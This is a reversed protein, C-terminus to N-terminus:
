PNLWGSYPERQLLELGLCLHLHRTGSPLARISELYYQRVVLILCGLGRRLHESVIEEPKDVLLRGVGDVDSNIGISTSIFSSNFRSERGKRGRSGPCNRM